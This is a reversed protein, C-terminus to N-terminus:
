KFQQGTNKLSNAIASAFNQNCKKRSAIIFNAIGLEIRLRAPPRRIKISLAGTGM